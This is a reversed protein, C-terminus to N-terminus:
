PREVGIKREYYVNRSYTKLHALLSVWVWLILKGLFNQFCAPRSEIPASDGGRWHIIKQWAESCDSSEHDQEKRVAWSNWAM